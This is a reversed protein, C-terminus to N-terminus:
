AGGDDNSAPQGQRQSDSGQVPSQDPVLESLAGLKTVVDYNELVGLNKIANFDEQQVAATAPQAVPNGKPLEVIFVTMAAMLAMSLALRPQPIFSFFRPRAPEAAIRQRLRANFGFSPEIAPVEDLLSSLKRFEEARTRCAACGTLHEEIGRRAGASVRNDLFAILENSIEECKM